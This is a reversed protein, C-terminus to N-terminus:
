DIDPRRGSPPLFFLSIISSLFFTLVGGGCRRCACYAGTRSYDLNTPRGPVTLKDLVMANGGGGGGWTIHLTQVPYSPVLSISCPKHAQVTSYRETCACLVANQREIISINNTTNFSIKVYFFFFLSFMYFFYISLSFCKQINSTM